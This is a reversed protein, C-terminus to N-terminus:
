PDHLMKDMVLRDLICPVLHHPGCCHCSYGTVSCSITIDSLMLIGLM